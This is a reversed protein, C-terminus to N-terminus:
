AWDNKEKGSEAESTLPPTLQLEADSSTSSSLPAQTDVAAPQVTEPLTPSPAVQRQVGEVVKIRIQPEGAIVLGLDDAIAQKAITILNDAMQPVALERTVIVDLRAQIKDGKPSVAPTVKVVGPLPDLRYLLQRVISDLSVTAKGGSVQEVKIFRKRKPKIELYIWLALILDVIIAIGVSIALRLIQQQQDILAFYQGWNVLFQGVVILIQGPFILVATLILIMGLLLLVLIFRNFINM